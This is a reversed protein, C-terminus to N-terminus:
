QDGHRDRGGVGACDPLVSANVAVGIDGHPTAEAAGHDQDDTFRELMAASIAAAPYFGKSAAGLGTLRGHKNYENASM